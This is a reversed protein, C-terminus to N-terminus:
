MLIEEMHYFNLGFSFPNHNGTISSKLIELISIIMWGMLATRVTQRETATLPLPRGTSRVTMETARSDTADGDFKWWGVLGRELESGNGLQGRDNKGMSWLSGDTRLLLSHNEGAAVSANTEGTLPSLFFISLSFFQFLFAKCIWGSYFKLISQFFFRHM